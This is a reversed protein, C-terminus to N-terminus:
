RAHVRCDKPVSSHLARQLDGGSFNAVTGNMFEVSLTKITMCRVSPNYVLSRWVVPQPDDEYRVPGIHRISFARGDTARIEDGVGNFLAVDIDVYKIATAKNPNVITVRPEVGGATNVTFRLARIFYPGRPEDKPLHSLLCDMMRKTRDEGTASGVEKACQNASKQAAATDHLVCCAVLAILSVSKM